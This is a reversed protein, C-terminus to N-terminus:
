YWLIMTWKNNIVSRLFPSWLILITTGTRRRNLEGETERKTKSQKETKREVNRDRDRGGEREREGERERVM